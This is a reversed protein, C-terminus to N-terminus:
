DIVDQWVLDFILGQPPPDQINWLLVLTESFACYKGIKSYLLYVLDLNSIAGAEECSATVQIHAEDWDGLFEVDPDEPKHDIHDPETPLPM